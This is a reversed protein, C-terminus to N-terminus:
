QLINEGGRVADRPALTRQLQPEDDAVVVEPALLVLGPVEDSLYHFYVKDFLCNHNILKNM